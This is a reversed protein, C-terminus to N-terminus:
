MAWIMVFDCTVAVPWVVQFHESGITRGNRKPHTLKGHLGLINERKGM